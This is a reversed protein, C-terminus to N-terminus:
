VVIHMLATIPFNVGEPTSTTSHPAFQEKSNTAEIGLPVATWRNLINFETGPHTGGPVFNDQVATDFRLMEFAPCQPTEELDVDKIPTDRPHTQHQTSTGYSIRQIDLM